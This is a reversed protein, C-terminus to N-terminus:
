LLIPRRHCLDTLRAPDVLGSARPM